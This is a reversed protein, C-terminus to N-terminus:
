SLFGAWILYLGVILWGWSWFTFGNKACLDKVMKVFSDPWFLRIVGQVVLFWGVLTVVVPWASVWLNHTIVVLLGLLLGIFGVLTITTNASVSDLLTKRFRSPSTLMALAVLFFWVGMVQAYFISICM